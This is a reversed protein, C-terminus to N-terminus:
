ALEVAFVSAGAILHDGANLAIPRGDEPVTVFREGARQVFFPEYRDGIRYSSLYDSLMVKGAEFRATAHIPGLRVPHEAGLPLGTAFLGRVVADEQDVRLLQARPDPLHMSTDLSLMVSFDEDGDEDRRIVELRLGELDTTKDAEDKSTHLRAEDQDLRQCKGRKGRVKLRFYDRPAFEQDEDYRNEPVVVACGVYNGVVVEGSLSWGIHVLRAPRALEFQVREDDVISVVSDTASWTSGADSPAKAIPKVPAPRPTPEPPPTSAPPESSIPGGFVDFPTKDAERRSKPGPLSYTEGTTPDAMREAEDMSPLISPEAQQPPESDMLSDFGVPGPEYRPPPRGGEGLGAAAPVDTDDLLRDLSPTKSPNRETRAELLAEISSRREGSSDSRPRPTNLIQDILSASRGSDAPPPPPSSGAMGLSMPSSGDMSAPAALAERLAQKKKVDTNGTDIADALDEATLRPQPAPKSPAVPAELDEPSFNVQFLCNGILMEDGPMLETRREGSQKTPYLSTLAGNRRIYAYCHRAICTLVPTSTLDIEGHESAVMISDTYFRSKPIDGSRARITTGSATSPLWAINDNQPEDPLQIKCRRDRGIRYKGGFVMHTSTPPRLIEGLYPWGPETHKRSLDNYELIHPGVQLTTHDTLPHAVEVSVTRGNVLVDPKHVVLAVQDNRVQFTAARDVCATSLNGSPSVYVDYGQMFKRFHVKQLLAGRERLTFIREQVSEPVITKHGMGMLSNGSSLSSAPPPAPLDIRPLGGLGVPAPEPVQPPPEVVMSDLLALVLHCVPEGDTDVISLVNAGAADDSTVSYRHQLDPDIIHVFSGDLYQQLRYLAPEQLAFHNFSDLWHNGLTFVVQDNFLRGVERYGEWVDPINLHIAIVPRSNAVPGTYTNPLVGTIFEGVELGYDEGAMKTGGDQLIRFRAGRKPHVLEFSAEGQYRALEQNLVRTATDTWEDSRNLSRGWDEANVILLIDTFDASGHNKQSTLHGRLGKKGETQWLLFADEILDGTTKHRRLRGAYYNSSDLLGSDTDGSLGKASGSSFLRSIWDLAM